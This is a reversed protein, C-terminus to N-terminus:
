MLQFEAMGMMVNILKKLRRRIPDALSENTPDIFYELYETEWEFDELDGLLSEKLYELQLDELPRPYILRALQSILGNVEQPLELKAVLSLPDIVIPEGILYIAGDNAVANMYTTRMPLTVSNLWFQYFVPSQYYAKWGAVTPPDFYEMQLNGAFAAMLNHQIYYGQYDEELKIELTKNIGVILDIPNKIQCGQHDQSLFHESKLLSLLVPKLEYDSARFLEALPNIIQNQIEDTLEFNVFWQYIKGCIFKSVQEQEFIIDVVNIYEENGAGQIIANDFRSSLIKETNDHLNSKFESGVPTDDEAFRGQFRWGTLARALESIDGETYHTYDGPGALDGKGITYLELLERAFNENPATAINQHGNLFHLMEPDIIIAKILEKFNGLSYNRLTNAYRYGFRADKIDHIAFHNQLFLTMKEQISINDVLLQEFTWARLSTMRYIRQFVGPAFPVGVWSSGIPVNADDAFNYNIPTTAPTFTTLIQDLTADLGDDVAQLIQQHSAGFNCRNLLHRATIYDFSGSFADIGGLVNSFESRSSIKNKNRSLATLAERRNM